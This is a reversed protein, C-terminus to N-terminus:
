YNLKILKDIYQNHNQIIFQDIQNKLFNPNSNVALSIQDFYKYDIVVYDLPPTKNIKNFHVTISKKFEEFWYNVSDIGNKTWPIIVNQGIGMTDYSLGTIDDILDGAEHKLSARLKKNLKLELEIYNDVENLRIYNGRSARADREHM